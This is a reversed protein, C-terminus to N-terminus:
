ACRAVVHATRGMHADRWAWAPADPLDYAAARRRRHSGKWRVDFAAVLPRTHSPGQCGRRCATAALRGVVHGNWRVDFARGGRGRDPSAHRQGHAPAGVLLHAQGAGLIAASSRRVSSCTAGVARDEVRDTRSITGSATPAEGCGSWAVASWRTAWLTPSSRRQTTLGHRRGWRRRHAPPHRRHRPPRAGRPAHSRRRLSPRKRLAGHTSHAWPTDCLEPVGSVSCREVDRPVSGM